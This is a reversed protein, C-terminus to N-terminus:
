NKIFYKNGAYKVTRIKKDELMKNILSWNSSSKSIFKNVAEYTMPHVATISLLEEEIDDIFTFDTGEDGSIIETNIGEENFIQYARNVNAIPSHIAKKSLPPRTPVLLFSREPSIMKIYSATDSVIELTDNIDKILMTETFIKGNYSNAFKEIGELIDSLQLKGHPRDIERWVKENVTDIKISVLDANFLDSRVDKQFILSANSIVAVKNGTDKLQEILYGLNADLTPEGDPVITIYDIKENKDKLKKLTTKVEKLISEPDYFESRKISCKDTKGVQCYICSYSCNKPPINNIGLSRGLRRSPIPGFVIM